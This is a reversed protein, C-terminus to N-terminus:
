GKVAWYTSICAIGSTYACAYTGGNCADNRITVGECHAIVEDGGDVYVDLGGDVPFYNLVEDCNCPNRSEFEAELDVDMSLDCGLCAGQTYTGTSYSSWPIEGENGFGSTCTGSWLDWDAHAPLALLSLSTLSLITSRM